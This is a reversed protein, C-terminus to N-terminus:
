GIPEEPGVRFFCGRAKLFDGFHRVWHTYAKETKISLRKTSCPALTGPGPFM